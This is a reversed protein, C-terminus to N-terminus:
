QGNASRQYHEDVAICGRGISDMGPLKEQQNYGQWLTAYKPLTEKQVV